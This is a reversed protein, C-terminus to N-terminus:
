ASNHKQKRCLGEVIQLRHKRRNVQQAELTLRLGSRALVAATWGRHFRHAKFDIRSSALVQVVTCQPSSFVFTVDIM